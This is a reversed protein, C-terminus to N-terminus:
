DKWNRAVDLIKLWSQISIYGVVDDAPDGGLARQVVEKTIWKNERDTDWVTIEANACEVKAIEREAGIEMDKNSCYNGGGFRTSITIGNPFTIRFEKNGVVAFM